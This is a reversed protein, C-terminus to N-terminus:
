DNAMFIISAGQRFAPAYLSEGQCMRRLQSFINYYSKSFGLARRCIIKLFFVAEDRFDPFFFVVSQEGRLSHTEFLITMRIYIQHNSCILHVIENLVMFLDTIPM